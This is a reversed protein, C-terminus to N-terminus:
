TVGLSWLEFHFHFCDNEWFSADQFVIFLEWMTTVNCQWFASEQSPPASYVYKPLQTSYILPESLPLENRSNM